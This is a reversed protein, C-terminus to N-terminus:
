AGICQAVGAFARAYRAHPHDARGADTTALMRRRRYDSAVSDVARSRLLDGLRDRALAGFGLQRRIDVIGRIASVAAIARQQRTSAALPRALGEDACHFM